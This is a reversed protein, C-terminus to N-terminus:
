PDDSLIKAVEEETKEFLEAIERNSMGKDHANCITRREKAEAEEKAQQMGKAMLAQRDEELSELGEKLIQEADMEKKVEETIQQLHLHEIAREIITDRKKKSDIEWNYTEKIFELWKKLHIPTNEDVKSPTLIILRHNHHHSSMKVAQNNIQDWWTVKQEIYCSPVNANIATLVVITYVTRTPTYNKHTQNQDLILVNHYHSFRDFFDQKKVFQIEILFRNKKDEAYLDCQSDVPGVGSLDQDKSILDGERFKLAACPIETSVSDVIVEKELIASLFSSLIEPQFAKRAYKGYALSYVPTNPYNINKM